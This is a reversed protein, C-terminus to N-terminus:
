SAFFVRSSVLEQLQIMKQTLSEYVLRGKATTQLTTIIQLKTDRNEVVELEIMSCLVQIAPENERLALLM